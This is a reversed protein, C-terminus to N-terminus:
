QAVKQIENTKQVKYIMVKEWKRRVSRYLDLAALADEYPCHPRGSVQIEMHLKESVLDKLKRPWLIGDDFRVQMFPAYKATDRILWWPHTIGLVKLDNKLAHGVLVRNKLLQLVLARCKELGM